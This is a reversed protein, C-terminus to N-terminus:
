KHNVKKSSLSRLCNTSAFILPGSSVTKCKQMLNFLIPAQSSINKTAWTAAVPYDNYWWQQNLIDATASRMDVLLHTPGYLDLFDILPQRSNGYQAYILSKTASRLHNMYRLSYPIAYERASLVRRGSFSPINDAEISLSAILSNKPLQGIHEYLKPHQGTVYNAYPSVSLPLPMILFILAFLIVLIGFLKPAYKRGVAILPPGLLLATAIWMTARLSHQTYRSPLHLDFLLFHAAMFWFSSSILVLLFLQERNGFTGPKRVITSNAFYCLMLPISLTFVLLMTALLPAFAFDQRFAEGCGWEVPLFGARAGCIYTELFGDLFFASRGGVQFAPLAAADAATIISGYSGSTLIFPLLGVGIASNGILVPWIQKENIGFSRESHKWRFLLLVLVGASVLAITPYFLAQLLCSVATQYRSNQSVSLLFWLLLPVAFARPTASLLSQDILSLFFCTLWSGAIAVATIPRVSYALKYALAATLLFLPTVLLKNALFPEIGLKDLMYHLAAYGPPTVSKFYEAIPDNNFLGPDRWQKMWFLFQRADDQIRYPRDFSLVLTELAPVLAFALAFFLGIRYSTTNNKNEHFLCKDAFSLFRTM